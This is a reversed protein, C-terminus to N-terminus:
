LQEGLGEVHGVEDVEAHRVAIQPRRRKSLRGGERGAGRRPPDLEPEADIKLSHVGIACLGQCGLSRRWVSRRKGRFGDMPARGCQSPHTMDRFCTARSVTANAVVSAMASLRRTTM